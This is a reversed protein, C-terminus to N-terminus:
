IPTFSDRRGVLFGIEDYLYEWKERLQDDGQLLKGLLVAQRLKVDAEGPTDANGPVIPLIQRSLWKMVRFYNELDDDRTYSGRVKYITFDEDPYYGPPGGQRVKQAIDRAERRVEKPAKQRLLEAAVGFFLLNRRAAEALKKDPKRYRFDERAAVLGAKM